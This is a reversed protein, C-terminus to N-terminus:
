FLSELTYKGSSVSSSAAEKFVMFIGSDGSVFGFVFEDVKDSGNPTGAKFVLLDLFHSTTDFSGVLRSLEEEM